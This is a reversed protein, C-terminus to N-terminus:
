ARASEREILLASRARTVAILRRVGPRCGRLVMRRGDRDLLTSAAALMRIAPVDISEVGSLDVVVDDYRDIQDYLLDRVEATSRGDFQGSLVLVNGNATADM